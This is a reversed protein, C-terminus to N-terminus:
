RKPATPSPAGDAHKSRHPELPPTQPSDGSPVVEIRELSDVVLLMQGEEEEAAGQARIRKGYFRRELEELGKQRAVKWNKARLAVIQNGAGRFNTSSSLFFTARRPAYKVAEVDFELQASQGPTLQPGPPASPGCGAVLACGLALAILSVGIARRRGARRSEREDLVLPM